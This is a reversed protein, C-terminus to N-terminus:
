RMAFNMAQLTLHFDSQFTRGEIKGYHCTTLLLLAIKKSMGRFGTCKCLTNKTYLVIQFLGVAWQGRQTGPSLAVYAM